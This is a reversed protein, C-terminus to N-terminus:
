LCCRARDEGGVVRAGAITVAHAFDFIRWVRPGIESRSAAADLLRRARVDVLCLGIDERFSIQVHGGISPLRAWNRLITRRSRFLPTPPALFANVKAAIDRGERLAWVVLSAGRSADGAVFVGPASAGAVLNGRGDITVGLQSLMPLKEVGTFGMALLVLDCPIEHQSDAIERIQGHKLEVRVVELARVHGANGLFGRTQVGFERAGGEEQSSSTRFVYPWEPWPNNSSRDRPPPPLLEIQTVSAANQRLSTGLCDSGTDGGGLIVVRKGTALIPSEGEREGPLGAVRRNQQTLFDMALHIGSLERGPVRLDRAQSAGICLVVAAFDRRLQEITITHGVDVNTRFIVGEARMQEMRTDLLHKELKFDPIGYRLLGGIRDSREFVTVEHGSRALQQAAALGAPGSGIVAVAKGSRFPAPRPVIGREFIKAAIAQEVSKITVSAGDIGLVCSAECPAPCVRGTVEPMPNTADLADIADEIRGRYVADNWDPILNGLPCARHCFPIGCDM